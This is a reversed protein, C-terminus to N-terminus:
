VNPELSIRDFLWDLADRHTCSLQRMTPSVKSSWRWWLKTTKSSTCNHNKRLSIRTRHFKIQTWYIVNQDSVQRIKTTSQTKAGTRRTCAQTHKPIRPTTGMVEIVMDWLDLALLGYMRLVAALSMIESETSSHFVSTQKKCMLSIAVFTRACFEAQHQNQTKLIVQLTQIKFYCWDVINLRMECMVINPSNTHRIYSILRALLRDCARTWKASIFTAFNITGIMQWMSSDKKHCSNGIQQSLVSHWTSWNTGPVLM